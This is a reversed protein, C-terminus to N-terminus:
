YPVSQCAIRARSVGNGGYAVWRGAPITAGTSDAYSNSGDAVVLNVNADSVADKTEIGVLYCFQNNANNGSGTQKSVDVSSGSNLAYWNTKGRTYASAPVPSLKGLGVDTCAVLGDPIKNVAFWGSAADTSGTGAISISATFGPLTNFSEWLGDLVCVNTSPSGGILTPDPSPGYNYNGNKWEGNIAVPPFSAGMKVRTAVSVMEKWPVCNAGIASRGSPANSWGGLSWPAYSGGGLLSVAIEDEAAFYFSNMYCYNDQVSGLNINGVQDSYGYPKSSSGFTFGNWSAPNWYLFAPTSTIQWFDAADASLTTSSAQSATFLIRPSGSGNLYRYVNGWWMSGNSLTFRMGSASKGGMGISSATVCYPTWRGIGNPTANSSVQVNGAGSAGYWAPGIINAGWYARHEWEGGGNPAYFEMMVQSPTQNGTNSVFGDVCIKDNSNFTGSSPLNRGTFSHQHIGSQYSSKHIQTRDPDKATTLGDIGALPAVASACVHNWISSAFLDYDYSKKGVKDAPPAPKSPPMSGNATGITRMVSPNFVKNCYNKSPTVPALDHIKPFRGGSGSQTHCSFCASAPSAATYKSYDAPATNQPWAGGGTAPDSHPVIPNPWSSPFYHGVPVESTKKGESRPNIDTATGPHNIFVNEGAHCATCVGENNGVLSTGGVWTPIDNSRADLGEVDGDWQTIYLDFAPQNFGHIKWDTLRGNGGNSTNTTTKYCQPGSGATTNSSYPPLLAKGPSEQSWPITNGKKLNWFCANGNTGQCIVQFSETFNLGTQTGCTQTTPSKRIAMMCVGLPNTKNSPLHLEAGSQYYANNQATSVFYYIDTPQAPEVFVESASLQGSYKWFNNKAGWVPPLPVGKNLCEQAYINSKSTTTDARAISTMALSGAIAVLVFACVIRWISKISDHISNM